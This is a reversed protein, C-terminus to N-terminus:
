TMSYFRFITKGVAGRQSLEQAKTTPWEGNRWVIVHTNPLIGRRDSQQWSKLKNLRKRNLNSKQSARVTKARANVDSVASTLPSLLSYISQHCLATYYHQPIPGRLIVNFYSDFNFKKKQYFGINTTKRRNFKMYRTHRVYCSYVIPYIPYSYLSNKQLM